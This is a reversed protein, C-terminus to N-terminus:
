SDKQEGGRLGLLAFTALVAIILGLWAPFVALAAGGLLVVGRETQSRPIEMAVYACAFGTLILTLALAVPMLPQLGTVFPLVLYLVPLGFIYYSSIGSFLSDVKDRGEGWRNVIIVHVGTWLSGQTPFFPAFLAMIANRIGTALHTRSVNFEIKEDPRKDKVSNLVEIGTIIDGFLIIYAIFALPLCQIFMTATPWGISFPTVKEFLQAFPPVLLGFHDGWQISYHIEGVFPLAGVFAAALFGPLLGLSAIWALWRYKQKARRMPASFTFMLCIGIAVGMSVPMQYVNGSAASDDTFVRLFAAIAAGMIIAGKLSPPLWEILVKGLGTFGLIFLLAAFNLSLATMLQLRQTPDDYAGATVFTLVLPLAPTIWGAAFPEGFLIPASSVLLAHLFAMTVAEEFTLGLYQTM